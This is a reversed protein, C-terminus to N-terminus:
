AEPQKTGDEASPAAKKKTDARSAKKDLSKRFKETLTYSNKTKGFEGAAVGNKLVTLFTANLWKKDEPLHEQMYKKIAIMSSGSRDNLETVASIIGEKYSMTIFQCEIINDTSQSSQLVFVFNSVSM